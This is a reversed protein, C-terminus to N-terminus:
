SFSLGQYNTLKHVIFGKFLVFVNFFSAYFWWFGGLAAGFAILLVLM